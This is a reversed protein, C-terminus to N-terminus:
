ARFTSILVVRLDALKETANVVREYAIGFAYMLINLRLYEPRGEVPTIDVVEFEAREALNRLRRRTNARYLTPFTDHSETQRKANFWEHFWHPTLSAALPVYHFRNPTKACFYGGPRLVRHVERFAAIPDPLHEFVNDSFVVDFTADPWPIMEAVGVKAEDLNPNNLVSEGPDLGCVWDVQGRFNMETIRGRGAGLDLITNEARLHLLVQERFLSDDWRSSSQPYFHRDLAQILSSLINEV